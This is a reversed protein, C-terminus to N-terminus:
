ANIAGQRRSTLENKLRLLNGLNEHILLPQLEATSEDFTGIEFLTFDEPYDSFISSPQMMTESVGRVAHAASPMCFPSLYAKAKSDFISFIKIM